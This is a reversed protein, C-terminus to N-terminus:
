PECYEFAAKPYDPRAFFEHRGGNRPKFLSKSCDRTRELAFGDVAVNGETLAVLGERLYGRVTLLVWM